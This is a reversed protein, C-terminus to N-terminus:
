ATKVAQEIEPLADQYCQNWDFTLGQKDALEKMFDAHEAAATVIAHNVANVKRGKCTALVETHMADAKAHLMDIGTAGTEVLKTASSATKGILDFIGATSVRASKIVSITM